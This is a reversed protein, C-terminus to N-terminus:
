RNWVKCQEWREKRASAEMYDSVFYLTVAFLAIALTM